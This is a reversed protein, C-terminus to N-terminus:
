KQGQKDRIYMIVSSIFGMFLGGCMMDVGFVIIIIATEKM